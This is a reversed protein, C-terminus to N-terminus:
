VHREADKQNISILAKEISDENVEQYSVKLYNIANQVDILSYKDVYKKAWISIAFATLTIRRTSCSININEDLRHATIRKYNSVKVHVNNEDLIFTYRKNLSSREAKTLVRINM